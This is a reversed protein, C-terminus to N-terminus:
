QKQGSKLRAIEKKLEEIQVKASVLDQRVSYSSQDRMEIDQEMADVQAKAKFYDDAVNLALLTSKVDASQRNYGPMEKLEEVKSNLYYAVHQLYDESEYGGLTLVKGDILVKVTHKEAM